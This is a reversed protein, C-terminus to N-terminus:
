AHYCRARSGGREDHAHTHRLTPPTTPIRDPRPRRRRRCTQTCSTTPAVQPNCKIPPPRSARDTCGRSLPSIPTLRWRVFSLSFLPFHSAPSELPHSIRPLKHSSLNRLHTVQRHRACARRRQLSTRHSAMSSAPNPWLRTELSPTGDYRSTCGSSCHLSVAGGGTPGPSRERERKPSDRERERV